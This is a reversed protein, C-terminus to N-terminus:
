EPEGFSFDLDSDGMTLCLPLSPYQSPLSAIVPSPRGAQFFAERRLADDTYGCTSAMVVGDLNLQRAINKAAELVVKLREHLGSPYRYDVVVLLRMGQYRARRVIFYTGCEPSFYFYWKRPSAFFRWQLFARSRGIEIADDQTRNDNYKDPLQRFLLFKFGGAPTSEPFLEDSEDRASSKNIRYNIVNFGLSVPNNVWIFKRLAGLSKLGAVQAIKEVPQTVGVGFFPQFARVGQIFLLAGVGQSRYEEHVFFDYGFYALYKRHRFIIECPSMLFQGVIKNEPTVAFLGPAHHKKELSPNSFIFWELRHRIKKESSHVLAAFDLLGPRLTENFQVIRIPSTM